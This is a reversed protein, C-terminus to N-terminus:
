APATVTIDGTVTGSTVAVGDVGDGGVTAVPDDRLL